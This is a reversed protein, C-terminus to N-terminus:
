RRRRQRLRDRLVDRLQNALWRPSHVQENLYANEVYFAEKEHWMRQVALDSERLAIMEEGSVLLYTDDLREHVLAELMEDREVASHLMLSNDVSHHRRYIATVEPSSAVGLIASARLQLDWDEFVSMTEDFRLGLADFVSRPFAFGHFPTAGGLLHSHVSFAEPYAFHIPGNAILGLDSGWQEHAFEQDVLVSRLVRGPHERALEVFTSVWNALLLDDDDFFALYEGSAMAVADNLPRSRSAGHSEHVQVRSSIEPVEDNVLSRISSAVEDNDPDHIFILVEFNQDVQGSLCVLADRLLAARQGRTRMVVSLFPGDFDGKPWSADQLPTLFRALASDDSPIQVM